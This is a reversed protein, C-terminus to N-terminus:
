KKKEKFCIRRKQRLSKERKTKKGEKEMAFCRSVFIAM